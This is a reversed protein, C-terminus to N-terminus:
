WLHFELGLCVRVDLSQGPPTQSFSTAIRTADFATGALGRSTVSFEKSIRRMDPHGVKVRRNKCRSCGGRSKQHGKRPTLFSSTRCAPIYRRQPIRCPFECVTRIPSAKVRRRVSGSEAEASITRKRRSTSRYSVMYFDRSRVGSM